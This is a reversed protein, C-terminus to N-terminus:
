KISGISFVDGGNEMLRQQVPGNDMISTIRNLDITNPNHWWENIDMIILINVGKNDIRFRAAPLIVKIFHPTGNLQGTHAQFNKIEGASDIKGELKMYHYGGGMTEPWEMRNEPPNPFKGSVNQEKNLGFLFSLRSYTGAPIKGSLTFTATKNIAADIYFVEKLELSDGDSKQLIINSVFYKLTAVSYKNGFLNTYRITDLVLPEKGVYHIFKFTVPYDVTIVKQNQMKFVSPEASLINLFIFLIFISFQGQM